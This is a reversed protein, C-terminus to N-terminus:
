TPIPNVGDAITTTTGVLMRKLVDISTEIEFKIM